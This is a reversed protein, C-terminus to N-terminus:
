RVAERSRDLGNDVLSAEAVTMLAKQARRARREIEEAQEIEEPIWVDPSDARSFIATPRGALLRRHKGTEALTRLGENIVSSLERGTMAKLRAAAELHAEIPAEVPPFLLELACLVVKQLRFELQRFATIDDARDQALIETLREDAIVSLSRCMAIQKEIWRGAKIGGHRQVSRESVDFRKAAESLTARPTTVVWKEITLWDIVGKKMRGNYLVSLM